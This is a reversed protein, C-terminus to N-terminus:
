GGEGGRGAIGGLLNLHELLWGGERNASRWHEQYPYHKTEDM